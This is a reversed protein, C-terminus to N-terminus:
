EEVEVGFQEKFYAQIICFSSDFTHEKLWKLIEMATEKRAKEVENEYLIVQYQEKENIKDFCVEGVKSYFEIAGVNEKDVFCYILDYATKYKDVIDNIVATGYGKRKNIIEFDGIGLAKIDRYISFDIYGIHQGNRYIKKDKYEYKDRSLVVSGEPIKGINNVSLHEALWVANFEGYANYVRQLINAMEEIQKEKDTM